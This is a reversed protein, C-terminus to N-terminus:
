VEGGVALLPEAQEGLALEGDGFEVAGIARTAKVPDGKCFILVNQHTKGFKRSTEFQKRVRVPLSGAATVLVGENYLDLGAKRFAEVTKWPLGYYAGTADRADGVVFCAFRDNKLFACANDIIREYCHLFNEHTMTSLDRPDESYVELDCYPPCSFVFDVGKPMLKLAKLEMADGVIWKPMPADCIRKAQERNAKVQRESLDIGVYGRGLRSAVIGRVSGGAFPDLVLGGPPCFWRYAIECLVPDFISTGSTSGAGQPDYEDYPNTTMGWTSGKLSATHRGSKSYSDAPPPVWFEPRRFEDTTLKRGIRAEVKAKRKYLTPDQWAGGGGGAPEANSKRKRVGPGLGDTPINSDGRMMDQGFTRAKPKRQVKGPAINWFAAGQKRPGLTKSQPKVTAVKAIEEDLRKAFRAHYDELTPLQGVLLKDVKEQMSAFDRDIEDMRAFAQNVSWVRLNTPVFEGGYDKWTLPVMGLAVAEFYRSTLAAPALWNFCLTYCSRQALPVITSFDRTFPADKFPFSGVFCSGPWPGFRKRIAALVAGREDGSLEGNPLRRKNAAGWYCFRTDREVRGEGVKNRIFWYKMGALGPAFAADAEDVEGIPGLETGPFTRERYLEPTDARDFTLLVLPKGRFLPAIQALRANSQDVHLPQKLGKTQWAFEAESVIVVVDAQAIAAPDAPPLAGDLSLRYFSPAIDRRLIYSVICEFFPDVIDTLPGRYRTTNRIRAFCVRM